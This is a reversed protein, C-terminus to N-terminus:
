TSLCRYFETLEAMVVGLGISQADSLAKPSANLEGHYQSIIPLKNLTASANLKKRARRNVIFGVEGLLKTLTELASHNELEAYLPHDKELVLTPGSVGMRAYEPEDVNRMFPRYHKPNSFRFMSGPVRIERVLATVLKSDRPAFYAMNSEAIRTTGSLKLCAVLRAFFIMNHINMSTLPNHQRYHSLGRILTKILDDQAQISPKSRWLSSAEATRMVNRYAVAMPLSGNIDEFAEFVTEALPIERINM